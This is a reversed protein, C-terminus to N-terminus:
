EEEKDLEKDIESEEDDYFQKYYGMQDQITQGIIIKSDMKWGKILVM